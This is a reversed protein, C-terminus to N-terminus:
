LSGPLEPCDEMAICSTNNDEVDTHNLTDDPECPCSAMRTSNENQSSDQFNRYIVILRYLQLMVVLINKITFFVLMQHIIKYYGMLVVRVTLFPGDQIFLSIGINWMDASHRFVMQCFASKLKGPLQYDTQEVTVGLELPFQLMSWSWVGLIAYILPPQHRVSPEALTESTFELIDAATGVFTLLLQSLQDKSIGVGVPLLWKGIILLLLLTQHLGLTWADADLTTIMKVWKLTPNRYDGKILLAKNLVFFLKSSTNYTIWQFNSLELIWLSPVTSILYLFIAPSFRRL